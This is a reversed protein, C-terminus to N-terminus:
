LMKISEAYKSNITYMNTDHNKPKKIKKTEVDVLYNLLKIVNNKHRQTKLHRHQLNHKNFWKNCCACYSRNIDMEIYQELDLESFYNENDM